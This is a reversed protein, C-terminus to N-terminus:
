SELCTEGRPRSHVVVIKRMNRLFEVSQLRIRVFRSLQLFIRKGCWIELGATKAGPM